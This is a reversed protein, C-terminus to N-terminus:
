GGINLVMKIAGSKLGAQLINETVEDHYSISAEILKLEYPGEEKMDKYPEMAKLLEEKFHEGIYTDDHKQMINNYGVADLETDDGSSYNNRELLTWFVEGFKVGCCDCKSHRNVLLIYSSSSSNSVYGNRTKM